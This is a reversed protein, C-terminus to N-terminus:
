GDKKEGCVGCFLWGLKHRIWYHAKHPRRSFGTKKHTKKTGKKIVSVSVDVMDKVNM